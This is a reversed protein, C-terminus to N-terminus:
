FVKLFNLSNVAYQYSRLSEGLLTFVKAKLKQKANAFKGRRVVTNANPKARKKAGFHFTKKRAEVVLM